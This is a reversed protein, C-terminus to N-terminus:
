REIKIPGSPTLMWDLAEDYADHPVAEVRQEDFAIGIATVSGHARLRALTRDYFGAGYGLRFGQRDFALLPVLLIEPELEPAHEDPVPVCFAGTKLPTEPKWARFILPAGKRVTVPLAIPHGSATLTELLPWLNLEDGIAAYGSIVAGPPPSIFELAGDALLRAGAARTDDSIEARLRTMRARLAQKAANISDAESSM